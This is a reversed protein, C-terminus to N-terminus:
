VVSKRDPLTWSAYDFGRNGIGGPSRAYWPSSYSGRSSDSGALRLLFDSVGEADDWYDGLSSGDLVGSLYQGLAM